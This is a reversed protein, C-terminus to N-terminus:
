PVALEDVDYDAEEEDGIPFLWLRLLSLHTAIDTGIQKYCRRVEAYQEEWSHLQKFMQIMPAASSRDSKPKPQPGSTDQEAKQKTPADKAEPLKGTSRQREPPPLHQETKRASASSSRASRKVAAFSMTDEHHDVAGTEPFHSICIARHGSGKLNYLAIEVGEYGDPKDGTRRKMYCTGEYVDKISGLISSEHLSILLPNDGSM